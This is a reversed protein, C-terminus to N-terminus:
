ESLCLSIDCTSIDIAHNESLGDIGYCVESEFLHVRNLHFINIWLVSVLNIQLLEKFIQLAQFLNRLYPLQSVFLFLM